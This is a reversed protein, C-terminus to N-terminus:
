GEPVRDKDPDAKVQTNYNWLKQVASWWYTGSIEQLLQYIDGEDIPQTAIFRCRYWSGECLFPKDADLVRGRNTVFQCKFRKIGDFNPIGKEVHLYVDVGILRVAEKAEPVELSEDEGMILISIRSM